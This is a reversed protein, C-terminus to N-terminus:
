FFAKAAGLVTLGLMKDMIKESSIMKEVNKKTEQYPELRSINERYYKEIFERIEPMTDYWFDFPNMGNQDEISKVIGLTYFLKRSILKLKRKVRFNFYGVKNTARCTSSPYKGAEPYYKDIWAWYLRGDKKFEMPLNCCLQFFDRDIFPSVAYTYHRRILHTSLIGQFGRCYYCFEENNEYEALISEPVDFKLSNSYRIETTIPEVHGGTNGYSTINDLQGTHELGYKEFNIASLMREGGTIGCYVALGYNLSIIHDLDFIFKANDLNYSHFDNKLHRAIAASYKNEDSGSQSYHYDSINKYGLEKAVWNVMRTDRGASMDAMHAKKYELDKDFCRKVAARFGKDIQEVCENFTREERGFVFRHYRNIKIKGNKYHLYRGPQLRKIEKIMTGDDVLFGFTLIQLASNEDLSYNVNQEKLIRVIMNFDNSVACFSLGDYYFVPADGTQNGWAMLEANKNVHVGSFPGVFERFFLSDTEAKLAEVVQFLTNAKYKEKLEALNLLIGDSIIAKEEDAYFLQDDAFRGDRKYFLEVGSLALKQFEPFLKKQINSGDTNWVAIWNNM